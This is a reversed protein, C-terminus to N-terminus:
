PVAQRGFGSGQNQREPALHSLQAGLNALLLFQDLPQL